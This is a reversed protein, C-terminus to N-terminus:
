NSGELPFSLGARVFAGSMDLEYNESNEIEAKKYGGELV